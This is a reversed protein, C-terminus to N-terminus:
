TYNPNVPAHECIPLTSCCQVICVRHNENKGWRVTLVEGKICARRTIRVGILGSQSGSGSLDRKESRRRAETKGGGGRMLPM